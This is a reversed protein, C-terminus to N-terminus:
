ACKEGQGCEFMSNLLTFEVRAENLRRYVVTNDNSNCVEILHNKFDQYADYMEITLVTAQSPESLLAFLRTELLNNM